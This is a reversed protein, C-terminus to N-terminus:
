GNKKLSVEVKDGHKLKLKRAISGNASFQMMAQFRGFELNIDGSFEDKEVEAKLKIETM